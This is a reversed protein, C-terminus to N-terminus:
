PNISLFTGRSQSTPVGPIYALNMCPRLKLSPIGQQRDETSMRLVGTPFGALIMHSGYEV